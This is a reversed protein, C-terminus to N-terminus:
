RQPEKDAPKEIQKIAAAAAARVKIQSDTQAARLAPLADKGAPGLSGLEDAIAIRVEFDKDAKLREAFFPILEKADSGYAVGLTHLADIRIDKDSDTSATEKLRAAVKVPQETPM